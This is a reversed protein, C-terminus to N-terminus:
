RPRGAGASLGRPRHRAAARGEGTPNLGVPVIGSLAAAVLVTSFFRTNGALVGVHPPRTPDLRARLAAALAAGQRIHSRWNIYSPEGAGDIGYVGRDEVDALSAVLASVTPAVPTGM